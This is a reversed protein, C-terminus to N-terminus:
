RILAAESTFSDAKRVLKVSLTQMSQDSPLLALLEQGQGEETAENDRAVGPFVYEYWSEKEKKRKAINRLYTPPQPRSKGGAQSKGDSLFLKKSKGTQINRLYTPPQPLSNRKWGPFGGSLNFNKRV